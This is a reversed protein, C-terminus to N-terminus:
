ALKGHCHKYKKGSGCPCPANRSIPEDIKVDKSVDESSTSNSANDTNTIVQALDEEQGDSSTAQPVQINM